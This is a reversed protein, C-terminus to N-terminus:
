LGEKSSTLVLLMMKRVWLLDSFSSLCYTVNKAGIESVDNFTKVNSHCFFTIWKFILFDATICVIM